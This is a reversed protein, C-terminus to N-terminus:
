TMKHKVLCKTFTKKYINKQLHFKAFVKKVFLKKCIIKQLHIKAFIKKM